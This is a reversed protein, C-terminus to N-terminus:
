AILITRPSTSAFLVGGPRSPAFISISTFRSVLM